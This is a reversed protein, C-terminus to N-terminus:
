SKFIFYKSKNIMGTTEYCLYLFQTLIILIRFSYLVVIITIIIIIM